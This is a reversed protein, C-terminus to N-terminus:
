AAGRADLVERFLAKVIEINNALLDFFDDATIALVVVGDVARASRQRRRGSLIDFVGFAEGVGRKEVDGAESVLEVEGEVLSYLHHPVDDRRYLLEGPACERPTAIGALRVIEEAACFRFLRVNQLHLVMEIRAM